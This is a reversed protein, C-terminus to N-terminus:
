IITTWGSETCIKLNKNNDSFYITGYINLNCTPPTSLPILRITDVIVLGKVDLKGAPSTTGIGVKGGGNALIVNANNNNNLYLADASDIENGDLLMNQTGSTIKLTATSGDNDAGVIHLSTEPTATGIGVNGASYYIGGTGTLWVPASGAPLASCEWVGASSTKLIEDQNPCAELENISHGMESPNTGGFAYVIGALILIGILIYLHKKEININISVM